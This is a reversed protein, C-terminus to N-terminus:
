EGDAAAPSRQSFNARFEGVGLLLCAFLCIAAPLDGWQQYGSWRSEPGVEAVVVAAGRRPGRARIRGAQDVWCSIGANAAVLLPRRMEVARFVSAAFQHDLISSGFFWGDHTINVLVDPANGQRSLEVVQRRVLHPVSSEFCINPVLTLGQLQFATPHQGPTIGQSMPALEYILPIWKGLPIYEGFMVPHMKYYRDVITGAPNILLASNYTHVQDTGFYISETGVLLHIGLTEFGGNRWLQNTETATYSLKKEFAARRELYRSWFEERSIQAEPPLFFNEECQIEPNNESFVSEPWIILDLDPHEERARLTAQRYENFADLNRQSDAEFKTDIVRQILAVKLARTATPDEALDSSTSGSPGTGTTIRWQGYGLTVALVVVAPVLPWVARPHGLPLMRTLCAAILLMVFGVGYAGSLDAIQILQTWEIQTHAILGMAFGTLLRGRLLELGTWVLPAALILSIRYRHVAVRTLAVFCPLYAALYCSLALWGFHNLWHALRVGQLMALWYLASALWLMLYPRRGPLQEWRILCLWPVPALWALWTWQLPAFAAWLM